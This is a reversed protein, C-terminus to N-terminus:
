AKPPHPIIEKLAFPFFDLKNLHTSIKMFTPIKLEWSASSMYPTQLWQIIQIPFDRSSKDNQNKGFFMGVVQVIENEHNDSIMRVTINNKSQKVASFDYMKGDIVIESSNIRILKFEQLTFIRTESNKNQKLLEQQVM